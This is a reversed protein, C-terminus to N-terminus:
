QSGRKRKPTTPMNDHIVRRLITAITQGEQEALIRLADLEDSTLRLEYRASRPNKSYPRGGRNKTPRTTNGFIM